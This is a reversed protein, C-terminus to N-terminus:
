RAPHPAGGASDPPLRSERAWRELENVLRGWSPVREVLAHRQAPLASALGHLVRDRELRGKRPVSRGLIACGESVVSEINRELLVVAWLSSKGRGRRANVCRLVESRCTAGALDPLHERIKDDDVCALIHEAPSSELLKLLADVGKTPVADFYNSLSRPVSLGLRDAVCAQALVQPGYNAPKPEALRDEYLVVLPRRPASM